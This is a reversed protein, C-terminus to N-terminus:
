AVQTRYHRLHHHHYRLAYHHRHHYAYRHRGQYHVFRAGWERSNPAYSIHVHAVRAYDTSYGGPWGALHQYICKPNGNIDVARHFAHNSLRGSGRVRAGPRFASVVRSGCADVIEHSKDILQQPYGALSVSIPRHLVPAEPAPGAELSAVVIRNNKKIEPKVPYAVMVAGASMPLFQMVAPYPEGEPEDRRIAKRMESLEERLAAIDAAQQKLAALLADSSDAKAPTTIALAVTMITLPMRM